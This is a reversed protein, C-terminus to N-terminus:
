PIPGSHKPCKRPLPSHLQTADLKTRKAITSGAGVEDSLEQLRPAVTAWNDLAAQLTPAIASADVYFELDCTVLVLKGDRTGNKLTALKM